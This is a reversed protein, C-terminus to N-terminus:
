LYRLDRPTILNLPNESTCREPPDIIQAGIYMIRQAISAVFAHMHKQGEEKPSPEVAVLM